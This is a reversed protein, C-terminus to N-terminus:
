KFIVEHIVKCFISATKLCIEMSFLKDDLVPRTIDMLKKSLRLFYSTLEM